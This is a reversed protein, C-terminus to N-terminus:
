NDENFCKKAIDTLLKVERLSATNRVYEDAGGGMSVGPNRYTMGSEKAVSASSHVCRVGTNRIIDSVNSSRVGSAAIVDLRGATVAALKRLFGSGESATPAQGSTLIGDCGLEILEEVAALPDACLDFARHFTVYMDGAAEVMRSVADRDITGDAHLAGIVVGDAGLEGARRIDDLMIDVEGASYLFDGPRPRILVHLLLGPVQRAARILGASPTMGGEKLGTCLEVRDAGSASATLVSEYDACCIEVINSKRHKSNLSM